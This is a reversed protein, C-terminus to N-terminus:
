LRGGIMAMPILLATFLVHYWIPAYKWSLAVKMLGLALLLFSLVLPALTNEGTIRAALFGSIVSSISGLVLHVLLLTSNATFPGGNTIAKEFAHQHLGIRVPFIACLIKESGVWVIIWAFFGAIVALFTQVM